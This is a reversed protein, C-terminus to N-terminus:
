TDDVLANPVGPWMQLYYRADILGFHKVLRPPTRLGLGETLGIRIGRILHPFEQKWNWTPTDVMLKWGGGQDNQGQRVGYRLAVAIMKRRQKTTEVTVGIGYDTVYIGDGIWRENHNFVVGFRGHASTLEFGSIPWANHPLSLIRGGLGLAQARRRLLAQPERHRRDGARVPVIASWVKIFGRAYEAVARVVDTIEERERDRRKRVNDAAWNLQPVGGALSVLDRNGLHRLVHAALVHDPLNTISTARSTTRSTNNTTTNRRRPM